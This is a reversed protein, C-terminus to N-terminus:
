SEQAWRVCYTVAAAALSLALAAMTISAFLPGNDGHQMGSIASDFNVRSALAIAVMGTGCMAIIKRMSIDKGSATSVVNMYM